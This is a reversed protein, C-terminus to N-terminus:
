NETKKEQGLNQNVQTGTQATSNKPTAQIADILKGLNAADIEKELVEKTLDPHNEKIIETFLTLIRDLEEAKPANLDVGSDRIEMLKRMHYMSIPPVMIEMKRLKVPTSYLIYEM